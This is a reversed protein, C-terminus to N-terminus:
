PAALLGVSAVAWGNVSHWIALTNNHHAFTPFASLRPFRVLPPLPCAPSASLRPFRVLPPLPCAPFAPLRPFRVLPPLPCASLRPFRAFLPLPCASLRVLPSLPCAPPLINILINERHNKGNRPHYITYIDFVCTLFPSISLLLNFTKATLTLEYQLEMSTSLRPFTIDICSTLADVDTLKFWESARTAEEGRSKM